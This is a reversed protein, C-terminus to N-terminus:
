LWLRFRHNTIVSMSAPFRTRVMHRYQGAKEEDIKGYIDLLVLENLQGFLQSM